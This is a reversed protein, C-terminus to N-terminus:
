LGLYPKELNELNPGMSLDRGHVTCAACPNELELIRWFLAATERFLVTISLGPNMNKTWFQM